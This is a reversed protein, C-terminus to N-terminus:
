KLTLVPEHCQACVVTLVRETRDVCVGLRSGPHCRPTLHIMRDDHVQSCGPEECHRGQLSELLEALTKANQKEM